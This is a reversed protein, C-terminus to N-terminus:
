SQLSQQTQGRKRKWLSTGRHACFEDLLGIRGESDRFMVLSEGLLKVRVPASDPEPIEWSLLAPLWYRRLVEGMPTGPGIRTLLDNEEPSLMTLEEHDTPPKLIQQSRVRLPIRLDLL